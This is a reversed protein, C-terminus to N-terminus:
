IKRTIPPNLLINAPQLDIILWFLSSLLYGCCIIGCSHIYDLGALIQGAMEKAWLLSLQSPPFKRGLSSLNTAMKELALCLNSGTPGEIRFDDLIASVHSHGNHNANGSRLVKLWELENLAVSEYRPQATFVKIAVTNDRENDKALWVTSHKGSGLKGQVGYRQVLTHVVQVLTHRGHSFNRQM